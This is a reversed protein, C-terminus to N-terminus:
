SRGLSEDQLPQCGATEQVNETSEPLCRTSIIGESVTCTDFDEHLMNNILVKYRLDNM